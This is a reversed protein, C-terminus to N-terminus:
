KMLLVTELNPHCPFYSVMDPYLTRVMEMAFFVAQLLLRRQSSILLMELVHLRILKLLSTELAKYVLLAMVSVFRGQKQLLHPRYLRIKMASFFEVPEILETDGYGCIQVNSSSICRFTGDSIIRTYLASTAMVSVEGRCALNGVRVNGANDRVISFRGYGQFTLETSNDCLLLEENIVSAGAMGSPPVAAGAAAFTVAQLGLMLSFTLFLKM